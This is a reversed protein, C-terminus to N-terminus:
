FIAKAITKINDSKEMAGDLVLVRQKLINSIIHSDKKM